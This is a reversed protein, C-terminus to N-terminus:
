IRYFTESEVTVGNLGVPDFSVRFHLLERQYERILRRTATANASVAEVKEAKAYKQIEYKSEYEGEAGPKSKMQLGYRNAEAEPGLQDVCFYLVRRVCGAAVLRDIHAEVDKIEERSRGARIFDPLKDPALSEEVWEGASKWVDIWEDRLSLVEELVEEHLKHRSM